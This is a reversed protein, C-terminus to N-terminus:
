KLTPEAFAITGLLAALVIASTRMKFQLLKLTFVCILRIYSRSTVLNLLRWILQNLLHTIGLYQMVKRIRWTVEFLKCFHLSKERPLGESARLKKSTRVVQRIQNLIFYNSQLILRNILQSEMIFERRNIQM